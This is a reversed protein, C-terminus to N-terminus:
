LSHLIVTKGLPDEIHNNKRKMTMRTTMLRMLKKMAHKGANPPSGGLPLRSNRKAIMRRYPDAGTGM